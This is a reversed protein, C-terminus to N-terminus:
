LLGDDEEEVPMKSLRRLYVEQLITRALPGGSPVWALAPELSRELGFLRALTREAALKTPGATGQLTRRRLLLLDPSSPHTGLLPASSYPQPNCSGHLVLAVV